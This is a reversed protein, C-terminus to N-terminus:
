FKGNGFSKCQVNSNNEDKFVNLSDNYSSVCNSGSQLMWHRLKSGLLNNDVDPSSYREVREHNWNNQPFTSHNNCKKLSSHYSHSRNNRFSNNCKVTELSNRNIGCMSSDNRRKSIFTDKSVVASYSSPIKSFPSELCLQSNLDPPKIWLCSHIGQRLTFNQNHDAVDCLSDDSLFFFFEKMKILGEVDPVLSEGNEDGASPKPKYPLELTNPQLIDGGFAKAPDVKIKKHSKSKSSLQFGKGEGVNNLSKTLRRPNCGIGVDRSKAKSYRIQQVRSTVCVDPLQNDKSSKLFSSYLLNNFVFFNFLM